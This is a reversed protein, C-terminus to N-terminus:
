NGELKDNHYWYFIADDFKSKRAEAKEMGKKVKLYWARPADCLRYVTM